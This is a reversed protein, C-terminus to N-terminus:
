RVQREQCIFLCDFKRSFLDDLTMCLSFTQSVQIERSEIKRHKVEATGDEAIGQQRLCREAFRLQPTSTEVTGHQLRSVKCLGIQPM